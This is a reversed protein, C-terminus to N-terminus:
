FVDFDGEFFIVRFVTKQNLTSSATELGFYSCVENKWARSRQSDFSIKLTM